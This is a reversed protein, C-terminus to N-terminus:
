LQMPHVTSTKHSFELEEIGVRIDTEGGITQWVPLLLAPHIENRKPEGVSHRVIQASLPFRFTLRPQADMRLRPAVFGLAFIVFAEGTCDFPPEISAMTRANQPPPIAGSNHCLRQPIEISLSRKQNGRNYHRIMHM